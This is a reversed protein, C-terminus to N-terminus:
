IKSKWKGCGHDPNKFYKHEHEIGCEIANHRRMKEYHILNEYYNDIECKEIRKWLWFGVEKEVIYIM